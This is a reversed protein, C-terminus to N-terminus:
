AKRPVCHDRLFEAVGDEAIESAAVGLVFVIVTGQDAEFSQGHILLFVYAALFGIRKNGDSFPHNRVIGYLYAAALVFVDTEGYIHKHIPRALSSELANEDKLGLLGGHEAIQEAHILEIAQRSLWKFNSM